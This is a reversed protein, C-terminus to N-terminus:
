FLCILHLAIFIKDVKRVQVHFNDVNNNNNWQYGRWDQNVVLPPLSSNFSVHPSSMYNGYYSSDVSDQAQHRRVTKVPSIMSHSLGQPQSWSQNM